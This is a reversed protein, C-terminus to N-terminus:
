RNGRHFGIKPKAEDELPPADLLPQLQEIVNRLVSDHEVLHRDIEALRKLITANAMITERMQVFARVLYLSMEIAQQSRLVNAAMLAGHETFVRPRYKRHRGRGGSELTAIQSRLASGGGDDLTAIQSRLGAFEEATLQFCFDGPFRRQNRRVAENLRKTAVGFLRAVESDLVVARSRVTHIVPLKTKM